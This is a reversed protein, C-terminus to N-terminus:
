VWRLIFWEADQSNEFVYYKSIRRYQGSCNALLWFNINNAHMIETHHFEIPVWGIDKLLYVMIDSDIEKQIQRSLEEAIEDELM